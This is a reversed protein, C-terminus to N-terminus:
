PEEKSAILVRPRGALDDIVKTAAFGAVRVLRAAEDLTTEHLEVALFGDAKLAAHAWTVIRRFVDLGDPGGDLALAPEHDRVEAPAEALVGTPVYPPNSVVADIAGLWAEDVGCGLDCEIVSVAGELGHKSVNERALEVCAPSVDTAVVEVLPNEHALSCAICGTGTCLDVVKVAREIANAGEADSVNYRRSPLRSLAESVLIETEPRPILVGKRVDLEIHRFPATGTIYQLPEGAGRRKVGARLVDLEDASLPRELDLYLQMPSLGTAHSLLWRASVLPNEDDHGALYGQMWELMRGITWAEGAM